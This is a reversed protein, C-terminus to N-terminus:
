REETTFNNYKNNENKGKLFFLEAIPWFFVIPVFILLSFWGTRNRDHCRKITLFIAPILTVAWFASSTIGIKLETVTMGFREDIYYLALYLITFPLTYYKNYDSLSIRGKWSLYTESLTKNM